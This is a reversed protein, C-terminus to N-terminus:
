WLWRPSPLLPTLASARADMSCFIYYLVRCMCKAWVPVFQILLSTKISHHSSSPTVIEACYFPFAYFNSSLMDWQKNKKQWDIFWNFICVYWCLCEPVILRSCLEKTKMKLYLHWYKWSSTEEKMKEQIRKPNCSIYQFLRKEHELVWLLPWMM